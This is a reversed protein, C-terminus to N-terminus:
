IVVRIAVIKTAIARTDLAAQVGIQQLRPELPERPVVDEAQAAFIERQLRALEGLAQM